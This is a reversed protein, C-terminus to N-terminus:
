HDAPKHKLYSIPAVRVKRIPNCLVFFEGTAYYVAGCQSRRTFAAGAAFVRSQTFSAREM